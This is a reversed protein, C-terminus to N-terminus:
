EDDDDSKDKSKDKLEEQNFNKVSKAFARRIENQKEELADIAFQVANYRAVTEEFKPEHYKTWNELFFLCEADNWIDLCCHIWDPNKPANCVTLGYILRNDDKDDHDTDAQAQLIYKDSLTFVIHIYKSETDDTGQFTFAFGCNAFKTEIKQVLEQKTISM